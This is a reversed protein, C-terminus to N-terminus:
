TKDLLILLIKLINIYRGFILSLRTDRYIRDAYKLLILTNNFKILLIKFM